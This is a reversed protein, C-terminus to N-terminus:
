SFINNKGQCSNPVLNEAFAISTIDATSRLGGNQGILRLDLILGSASEIESPHIGHDWIKVQAIEGSFTDTYRYELSTIDGIRLADAGEHAHVMGIVESGELWGDVFIYKM